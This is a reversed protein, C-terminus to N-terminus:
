SGQRNNLLKYTKCINCDNCVEVIDGFISKITNIFDDSPSVLHMIIKRPLLSLLSNLAYDNSSFSIDSLYHTDLNNKTLSIINKNKDLLISEENVYILHVLDIQPPRSSIYLQLLDIFESYERNIVFKSVSFDLINDLCSIYDSIRFTIFGDLVLSNNCTIYRLIDKWLYDNKDIIEHMISADNSSNNLVSLANNSLLAKCINKISIIDEDDFYFYNLLILNHIIKDEYNDIICNTLVSCIEEYFVPINNGLYHVIVNTYKSFNKKTFVINDLNINSINQMLYNIIHNKNTKICLSVM